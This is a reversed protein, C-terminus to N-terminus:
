KRRRWVLLGLGALALLVLVGPEPVALSAVKGGGSGDGMPAYHKVYVQKWLDFDDTTVDGSYDLDGRLWGSGHTIYGQKWNDFDDTTVEGSLDADGAYTFRILVSDPNATRGFWTGWALEGFDSNLAYGVAYREAQAAASSSTIGLGKWPNDPDALNYASAIQAAITAAPTATGDVILQGTKLDVTGTPSTGGHMTLARVQVAKALGTGLVVNAQKGMQLDQGTTSAPVAIADEHNLELTGANVNVGGTFSNAVALRLTGAGEKVL